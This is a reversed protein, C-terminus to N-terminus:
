DGVAVLAQDRGNTTGVNVKVVNKLGERRNLGREGQSVKAKGQRHSSKLAYM